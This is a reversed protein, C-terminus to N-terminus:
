FVYFMFAKGKTMYRFAEEKDSHNFVIFGIPKVEGSKLGETMIKSLEHWGSSSGENLLADLLIGHFTVNKLFFSMGLKSDQSLDFKGIELFVGDKAM